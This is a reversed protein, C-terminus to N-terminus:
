IRRPLPLAPGGTAMPGIYQKAIVVDDYWATQNPLVESSYVGISIYRSVIKEIGRLRLGPHDMVLKGNIWIAVRGDRAGVTNCEVMLEYCNWRNLQPTVNARPVFDASFPYRQNLDGDAVLVDGYGSSQDMHCCYNYVWGPPAPIRRRAGPTCRPSTTLSLGSSTPATPSPVPRIPLFNGTTVEASASAPIIAVPFRPPFKM